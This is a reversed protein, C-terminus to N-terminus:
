QDKSVEKSQVRFTDLNQNLCLCEASCTRKTVESNGGDEHAELLVLVLLRIPFCRCQQSHYFSPHHLSEEVPIPSLLGRFPYVKGVIKKWLFSETLDLISLLDVHDKQNEEEMAIRSSQGGATQRSLPWRLRRHVIRDYRGKQSIQRRVAAPEASQKQAAFAFFFSLLVPSLLCDDLCREDASQHFLTQLCQSLRM